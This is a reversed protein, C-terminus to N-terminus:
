GRKWEMFATNCDLRTEYIKSFPQVGCQGCRGYPATIYIPWVNCSCHMYKIINYYTM